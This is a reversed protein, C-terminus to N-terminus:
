RKSKWTARTQMNRNGGGITHYGFGLVTSINNYAEQRGEQPSLDLQDFLRYQFNNNKDGDVFCKVVANRLLWPQIMLNWMWM